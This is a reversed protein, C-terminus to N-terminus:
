RNGREARERLEAGPVFVVEWMSSVTRRREGTSVSPRNIVFVVETLCPISPTQENSGVSLTHNLGPPLTVIPAVAPPM